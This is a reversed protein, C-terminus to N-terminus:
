IPLYVSVMTGKGEESEIEIQGGHKKIIEQTIMMGLGTGHQKTSYFAEFIRRKTEPSMGTGHDIVRVAIVGQAASMGPPADEPKLLLTRL